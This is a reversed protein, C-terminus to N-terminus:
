TVVTEDELIRGFPVAADKFLEVVSVDDDSILDAASLKKLFYVM